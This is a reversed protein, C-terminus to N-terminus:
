SCYLVIKKDKSYDKAWSSVDHPDIRVAGVIKRNSKRWDKVSRADLLVLDPSALMSKLQETSMRPVDDAGYVPMTFAFLVLFVLGLFMRWKKIKMLKCRRNGNGFKM